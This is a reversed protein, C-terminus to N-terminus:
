GYDIVNRGWKINDKYRLEGNQRVKIWDINNKMFSEIQKRLLISGDELIAHINDRTLDCPFLIFYKLNNERLIQQKKLLKLRYKERSKSNVIPKNKFFWEKYPEIIGAIEIYLTKGGIHIIYDCNMNGKYTPIFDSYKIDRFYNVNYVLGYDRLYKSFMYEFQSTVHEGDNFDFNIGHGQQGLHINYKLLISSLTTRYYEKAYKRLSQSNNWNKNSDIETTTIFNRNDSNVYACIDRIVMNFDEKSLHRDMMSEQIVELGLEKKMNNITGWYKKIFKIPPHYCGTGRFDDYLLPRNLEKQLKYICKIMKEKTPNKGKAIFGCWDVFDSWKKISNDPCNKVFWRADPLGNFRLENSRIPYDRQESKLIYDKVYIPYNEINFKRGEIQKM